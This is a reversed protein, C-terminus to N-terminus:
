SRRGKRRLRSSGIHPEVMRRSERLCGAPRVPFALGGGVRDFAALAHPRRGPAVTVERAPPLARIRRVGSLARRVVESRGPADLGAATPVPQHVVGVPDVHGPHVAVEGGRDAGRGGRDRLAGGRAAPCTVARVGAGGGLRQIPGLGLEVRGEDGSRDLCGGGGASGGAGAGVVGAGAGATRCSGTTPRM